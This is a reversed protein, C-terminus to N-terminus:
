VLREKRMTLLPGLKGGNQIHRLADSLLMEWTVSGHYVRM